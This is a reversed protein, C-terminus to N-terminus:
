RHAQSGCPMYEQKWLRLYVEGQGATFAYLSLLDTAGIISLLPVLHIHTLLIVSRGSYGLSFLALARQILSQTRGLTSKSTRSSLIKQDEQSEFLPNKM